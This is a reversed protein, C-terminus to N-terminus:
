RKNIHDMVKDYWEGANEHAYENTKVAAVATGAVVVGVVLLGVWGVPSAMMLLTLAAEGIAASSAFAASEVFMAKEWNDGKKYSERIKNVGVGFEYIAVGNGILKTSKALKGIKGAEVHDVLELKSVNRSSKAINTARKFNNMPTGKRASVRSSVTKVEHRFKHQMKDFASKARLKAVAREGPSLNSKIANRYLLLSDQYAKVSGIFNESRIAISSAAKDVGSRVYENINNEHSSELEHVNSKRLQDHIDALAILNDQGVTISLDYLNRISAYPGLKDVLCQDGHSPNSSILYPKYPLLSPNSQRNFGYIDEISIGCDKILTDKGMPQSCLLIEAM